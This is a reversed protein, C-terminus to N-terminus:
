EQGFLQRIVVHDEKDILRGRMAIKLITEFSEKPFNAEGLDAAAIFPQYAGLAMDAHLRLWNAQALRAAEGASTRWADVRRDDDRPLKVPWLFATGSRNVTLHLRVPESFEHVLPAINMTAFYIEREIKLEIILCDLTFKPHVRVFEGRFPKRVPVTTLIKEVGISAASYSQDLRISALFDEGNIEDGVKKTEDRSKKM